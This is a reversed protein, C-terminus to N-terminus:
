LLMGQPIKNNCPHGSEICKKYFAETYENYGNWFGPNLAESGFKEVYKAAYPFGREKLIKIIYDDKNIAMM